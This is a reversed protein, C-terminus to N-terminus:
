HRISCIWSQGGRVWNLSAIEALNEEAGTSFRQRMKAPLIMFSWSVSVVWLTLTTVRADM